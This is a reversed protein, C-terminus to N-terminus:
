WRRRPRVRPLRISPPPPTPALPVKTGATSLPMAQSSAPAPVAIDLAYAGVAGVAACAGLGLLARRSLDPMRAMM